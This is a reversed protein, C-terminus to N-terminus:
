LAVFHFTAALTMGLGMIGKLLTSMTDLVGNISNM